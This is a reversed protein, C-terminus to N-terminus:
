PMMRWGRWWRSMERSLSYTTEAQRIPSHTSTPSRHVARRSQSRISILPSALKEAQHIRSRISIPPSALKEAQHIRSRISIPPSALKEAQHIPSRTSRPNTV